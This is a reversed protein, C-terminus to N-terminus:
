IGIIAFFTNVESLAEMYEKHFQNIEDQALDQSM